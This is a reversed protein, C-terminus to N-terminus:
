SEEMGTHEAWCRLSPHLGNVVAVEAIPGDESSFLYFCVEWFCNGRGHAMKILLPFIQVGGLGLLSWVLRVVGFRDIIGVWCLFIGAVFPKDIHEFQCVWL